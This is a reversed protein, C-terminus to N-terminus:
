DKRDNPLLILSRVVINYKKLWGRVWMTDPGEQPLNKENIYYLWNLPAFAYGFLDEIFIIPARGDRSVVPLRKYWGWGEMRGFVDVRQVANRGWIKSIETFRDWALNESQVNTRVHGILPVAEKEAALAATFIGLSISFLSGIFLTKKLIIM